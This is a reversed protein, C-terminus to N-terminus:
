AAKGLFRKVAAAKLEMQRERLQEGTMGTELEAQTLESRKRRPKPKPKGVYWSEGWPSNVSRFKSAM